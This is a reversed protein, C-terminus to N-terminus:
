RLYAKESTSLAALFEIEAFNAKATGLTARCWRDHANQIRMMCSLEGPMDTRILEWSALGMIPRENADCGNITVPPPVYTVGIACGCYPAGPNGQRGDYACLRLDEDLQQATLLGYAHAARANDIVERLSLTTTM